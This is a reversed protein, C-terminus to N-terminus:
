RTENTWKEEKDVIVMTPVDSVISDESDCDDATTCDLLPPREIPSM